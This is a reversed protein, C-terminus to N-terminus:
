MRPTDSAMTRQTDPPCALRPKADVDARWAQIVLELLRGCPSPCCVVFPFPAPHRRSCRSRPPRRTPQGLSQLLSAICESSLSTGRRTAPQHAPVTRQLQARHRAEEVRQRRVLAGLEEELGLHRRWKVGAALAVWSWPVLQQEGKAPSSSKEIAPRHPWPLWPRREPRSGPPHTPPGAATEEEGEVGRLYTNHSM